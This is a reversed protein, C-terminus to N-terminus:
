KKVQYYDSVYRYVGGSARGILLLVAVEYWCTDLGTIIYFALLFTGTVVALLVHLFFEEM